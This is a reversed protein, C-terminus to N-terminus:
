LEHSVASYHMELIFCSVVSKSFIFDSDHCHHMPNLIEPLRVDPLCTVSYYLHTSNNQLLSTDNVHSKIMTFVTSSWKYHCWHHNPILFQVWTFTNNSDYFCIRTSSLTTMLIVVTSSNSYLLESFFVQTALLNLFLIFVESLHDEPLYTFMWRYKNTVCYCTM